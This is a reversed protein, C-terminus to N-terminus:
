LLCFPSTMFIFSLLSRIFPFLVIVLSHLCIIVDSFNIMVDYVLLVLSKRVQRMLNMSQHVHSKHKDEVIKFVKDQPGGGNTPMMNMRPPQMPLPNRPLNTLNPKPLFAALNPNPRLHIPVPPVRSPGPVGLNYLKRPNQIQRPRQKVRRKPVHDLPLTFHNPVDQPPPPPKDLPRVPQLLLEHYPIKPETELPMPPQYFQDPPRTLWPNPRGRNPQPQRPLQSFMPPIPVGNIYMPSPPAPPPAPPLAPPNQPQVNPTPNPDQIQPPKDEEM